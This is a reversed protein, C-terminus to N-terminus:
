LLNLAERYTELASQLKGQRMLGDGLVRFVAPNTRHQRVLSQLDAVVHELERSGRVLAEYTDLAVAVDGSSAQQRAEELAASAPMELRRTVASPLPRVPQPQLEPEPRLPAEPAREDMTEVLWEPISDPVVDAELERLWDPMEVAEAQPLAAPTVALWDPLPMLEGHPLEYEEPLRANALGGDTPEDGYQGVSALREPDSLNRLYWDPPAELSAAEGDQELDFAEVWPDAPDIDLMLGSFDGADPAVFTEEDSNAFITDFDLEGESPLDEQLWDPLEAAPLPETITEVLAPFRGTPQTEDSVPPPGVQELLWDPLEAPVPPTEAVFEAEQELSEVYVDTQRELYFQMQEPSVTGDAIAQEIEDIDFTAAPEPESPVIQAADFGQSDALSGLWSSPDSLEVAADAEAPPTHRPEIPSDFSFPTYGPEDLVPNVPVPINMETSTTLEEDRAGQRRALNELWAMPDVGSAFPDSIEDDAPQSSPAAAITPTEEQNALSRLWAMPDTPEDAQAPSRHEIEDTLASLDLNFLADGQDAALSELWAMADDDLTAAPEPEAPRPPTINRWSLDPEPAAQARPAPAPPPAAPRPPAQRPPEPAPAPRLPAAPRPPEFATPRVPSLPPPPPFIPAPPPPPAAPRPPRAPREEGYPVYGPEDIVVSNPDIEPIEIDASTTLEEAKAGQRKALSEMWAMIEEPSMSDFDPTNDAAAM